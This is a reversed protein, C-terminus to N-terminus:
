QQRAQAMTQNEVQLRIGFANVRFLDQTFDNRLDGLDFLAHRIELKPNRTVHDSGRPDNFDHWTKKAAGGSLNKAESLIVFRLSIRHAVARYGFRDHVTLGFGSVRSGFSEKIGVKETLEFTEM